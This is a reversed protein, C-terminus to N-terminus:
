GMEPGSSKKQAAARDAADREHAARRARDVANDSARDSGRDGNDERHHKGTTDDTTGPGATTKDADAAVDEMAERAIRERTRRRTNAKNIRDAKEGATEGDLTETEDSTEVDGLDDLEDFADSLDLVDDGTDDGGTVPAGTSGADTFDTGATSSGDTTDVDDDLDLLGDLDSADVTEDLDVGEGVDDHGSVAKRYTQRLDREETTLGADDGVPELAQELDVDEAATALAGHAALPKGLMAETVEHTPTDPGAEVPGLDRADEGLEASLDLVDEGFAATPTNERDRTAQNEAYEAHYDDFFETFDYGTTSMDASVSALDTVDVALLPVGDPTVPPLMRMDVNAPVSWANETFMTPMPFGDLYLGKDVLSKIQSETFDYDLSLRPTRISADTGFAVGTVGFPMEDSPVMSVLDGELHLQPRHREGVFHLVSVDPRFLVSVGFGKAETLATSEDSVVREFTPDGKVFAPIIM